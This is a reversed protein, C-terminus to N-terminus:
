AQETKEFFPEFAFWQDWHKGIVNELLDRWEELALAVDKERDRGTREVRIPARTIVRYRRMGRRVIFLPYIPVRATMALVFPGTPLRVPRGFLRSPASAVHGLVRDGQIAVIGGDGLAGIMELAVAEGSVNYTVRLSDAIRERRSRSYEESEPDVEPVRVTTLKGGIKEAFFYSGLDYNGMHATLIIAGGPEACLSELNEYGEFDWDVMRRIENFRAADTFNWAFALFVRFARLRNILKPSEAHVADLNTAVARRGPAWLLYFLLTWGIMAASELFWPVNTVAWALYHRWFVGRPRFISLYRRLSM